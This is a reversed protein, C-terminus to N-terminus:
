RYFEYRATDSYDHYYTRFIGTGNGDINFWKLERSDRAIDSLRKIVLKNDDIRIIAPYMGSYMIDTLFYTAGNLKGPIADSVAYQTFRPKDKLKAISERTRNTPKRQYQEPSTVLTDSLETIRFSYDLGIASESWRYVIFYEPSMDSRIVPMILEIDGSNDIDAICMLRQPPMVANASKLRLSGSDSWAPNLQHGSYQYISLDYYTNFRDNTYPEDACLMVLENLSDNDVDGILAAEPYYPFDFFDRVFNGQEFDYVAVSRENMLMLEDDRDNDFDATLALKFKYDASDLDSHFRQEWKENNFQYLAFDTNDVFLLYDFNTDNLKFPMVRKEMDRIEYPLNGQYLLNFDPIENSYTIPSSIIITVIILPIKYTLLKPIM